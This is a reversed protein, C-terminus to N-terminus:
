FSDTKTNLMEYIKSIEILFQSELQVIRELMFNLSKLEKECHDLKNELVDLEENFSNMFDKKDLNNEKNDWKESFNGM